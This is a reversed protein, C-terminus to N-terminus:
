LLGLGLSEIHRKGDHVDASVESRLLIALALFLIAGLARILAWAVLITGTRIAVEDEHNSELACRLLVRGEPSETGYSKQTVCILFSSSVLFNFNSFSERYKVVPFLTFVFVASCNSALRSPISSQSRDGLIGRCMPFSGVIRIKTRKSRM